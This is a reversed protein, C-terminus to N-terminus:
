WTELSQDFSLKVVTSALLCKRHGIINHPHSSRCEALGVLKLPKDTTNAVAKALARLSLSRQTM